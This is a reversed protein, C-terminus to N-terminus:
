SFHPSIITVSTLFKKGLSQDFFPTRYSTSLLQPIFFALIALAILIVILTKRM